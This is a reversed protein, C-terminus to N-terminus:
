RGLAEKCFGDLCWKVALHHEIVVPLWTNVMDAKKAIHVAALDQQEIMRDPHFLTVPEGLVGSRGGAEEYRGTLFGMAEDFRWAPLLKYSTIGFKRYLEGYVSGFENRGSKQGLAIVAARM